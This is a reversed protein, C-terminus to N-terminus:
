KAFHDHENIILTQLIALGGLHKGNGHSRDLAPQVRCNLFKVFDQGRRLKNVM